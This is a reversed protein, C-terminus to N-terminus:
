DTEASTGCYIRKLSYVGDNLEFQTENMKRNVVDLLTADLDDKSVRDKAALDGVSLYGDAGVPLITGSTTRAGNIGSGGGGGGGVLDILTMDVTGKSDGNILPDTLIYADTESYTVETGTSLTVKGDSRLAQYEESTLYVINKLKKSAM